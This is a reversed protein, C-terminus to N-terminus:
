AWVTGADPRVAVEVRGVGRWRRGDVAVVLRTGVVVLRSESRLRLMPHPLHNGLRSRRWAISRQRLNMERAVSVVEFRGDNPHGRPAVDRGALYEVNMVFNTEGRWRGGRWWPNSVVVHAVAATRVEGSSRSMVVELVDIPLARATAGVAPAATSGITLALDGGIVSVPAGGLVARCAERDRSVVVLDSPVVGEGGWERGREITM